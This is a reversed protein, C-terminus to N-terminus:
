AFFENMWRRGRAKRLRCRVDGQYQIAIADHEVHDYAVSVQGLCYLVVPTATGPHFRDCCVTAFLDFEQQPYGPLHGLRGPPLDVV